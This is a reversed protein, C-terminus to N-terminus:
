RVEVRFEVSVELIKQKTFTGIRRTVRSGRLDPRTFSMSRSESGGRNNSWLSYASGLKGKGLSSASLVEMGAPGAPIHKTQTRM